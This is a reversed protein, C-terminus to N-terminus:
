IKEQLVLVNEKVKFRVVLIMNRIFVVDKFVM